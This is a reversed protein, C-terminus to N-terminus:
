EKAIWGIEAATAPGIAVEALTNPLHGVGAEKAIEGVMIEAFRQPYRPQRDPEPLGDPVTSHGDQDYKDTAGLFHLFEHGIAVLTLDTMSSDLQSEVIGVDGNLAGIGEVLRSQSARAPQLMIYIRADYGRLNIDGRANVDRLYRTLELTYMARDFFGTSLPSMPPAQQVGVAGLSVFEVPALHSGPHYRAFERTFLDNLNPLAANLLEAKETPVGGPGLTILAVRLTRSWETRLTRRVVVSAAWLSVVALALMLVAIRLPRRSNPKSTM